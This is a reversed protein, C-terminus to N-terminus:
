GYWIIIFADFFLFSEHVDADDVSQMGCFFVMHEVAHRSETQGGALHVDPVAVIIRFGKRLFHKRLAFRCAHLWARQPRAIAANDAPIERFPGDRQADHGFLHTFATDVVQLFARIERLHDAHGGDDRMAAENRFVHGIRQIRAHQCGDVVHCTVALLKTQSEPELRPLLRRDDDEADNFLEAEAIEADIEIGRIQQHVAFAIRDVCQFNEALVDAVNM